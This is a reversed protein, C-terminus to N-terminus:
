TPITCGAADERQDLHLRHDQGLRPRGFQDRDRDDRARTNTAGRFSEAESGGAAGEAVRFLAAEAEEIQQMPEVEESTDLANEVLERGVSVLERLLALDYIQQALERPALLGHGDATLRALYGTGGLEVIAPDTEFYPKLTVPTVVMQKDLLVLIREFIRAHLPEFFHAPQLPM